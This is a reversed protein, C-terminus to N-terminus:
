RNRKKIINLAVVYVPVFIAFYIRLDTYKNYPIINMSNILTNLVIAVFIGIMTAQMNDRNNKNTKPRSM